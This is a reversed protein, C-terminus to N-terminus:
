FSVVVGASVTREPGFLRDGVPIASERVRNVGALHDQYSRDLLNDVQAELRLFERPNWTLTANLLGYGASPQEGNFAPAGRVRTHWGIAPGSGGRMEIMGGLDVAPTPEQIARVYYLADRRGTAFSPDEFEVVAFEDEVRGVGRLVVSTRM